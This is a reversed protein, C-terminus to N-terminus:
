SVEELVSDSQSVFECCYMLTKFLLIIIVAVAITYIINQGVMNEPSQYVLTKRGSQECASSIIQRLSVVFVVM